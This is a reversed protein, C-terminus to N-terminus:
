GQWLRGEGHLGRPWLHPHAARSGPAARTEGQEPILRGEPDLMLWLLQIYERKGKSCVFVAYKDSNQLPHHRHSHTHPPTPPPCAPAPRALM